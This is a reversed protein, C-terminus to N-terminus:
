CVLFLEINKTKISARLIVDEETKGLEKREMGGLRAKLRFEDALYISPGKYGGKRLDEFLCIRNEKNGDRSFLLDKTLVLDIDEIRVRLADEYSFAKELDYDLIDILTYIEENVEAQDEVVLIKQTMKVECM